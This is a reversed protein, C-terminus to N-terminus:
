AGGSAGGAVVIEVERHVVPAVAVTRNARHTPTLPVAVQGALQSFLFPRTGGLGADSGNRLVFHIAGQTSALVARQAQDPTLLVTVVTVDSIKGTPDPETQHGAAVVQVNELVTTTLPDDTHSPRCTVLVDVHSGPVLFGGVGVIEDSRLAVARMGDPIRSALGIGSGPASLDGDLIPEGKALSLLVERGFLDGTQTHAGELPISAPWTVFEVNEPRLVEGPQLAHSPAAYRSETVHAQIPQSTLRRSVFWTCALSVVLALALAILIRKANM